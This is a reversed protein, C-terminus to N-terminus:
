KSSLWEIFSGAFLLAIIGSFITSILSVYFMARCFSRKPEPTTTGFGWIINLILSIIGFFTCVVITLFWEGTSMYEYPVNLNQLGKNIDQPVGGTGYQPAGYGSTAGVDNGVPVNVIVGPQVPKALQAPMVDEHKGLDVAREMPKGCVPCFRAEGNVLSGCERCIREM